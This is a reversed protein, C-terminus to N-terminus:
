CVLSYNDAQSSQRGDTALTAVRLNWRRKMFGFWVAVPMPKGSLSPYESAMFDEYNCGNRDVDEEVDNRKNRQPELQGVTRSRNEEEFQEKNLESQVVPATREDKNERLLQRTEEMPRDLMDKMM